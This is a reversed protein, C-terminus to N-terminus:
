KEKNVPVTESPLNRLLEIGTEYVFVDWIAPKQLLSNKLLETSHYQSSLIPFSSNTRTKISKQLTENYFSVLNRTTNLEALTLDELNQM